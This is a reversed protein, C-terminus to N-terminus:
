ILGLERAKLIAQARRKVGLKGYINSAHRKVTDLAIVLEEAIEANSQGDCILCLVDLERDTLPEILSQPVITSLQIGLDRALAALQENLAPNDITTALQKAQQWAALAAATDGQAHHLQAAVVHGHALYLVHGSRRGLETGQQLHEAAEDFRNLARLVDALAIDVLCFAPWDSYEPQEALSLAERCISEAELLRGQQQRIRALELISAGMALLNSSARSHQSSRGFCAAAQELDGGALYNYGMQFYGLGYGLDTFVTKLEGRIEPITALMREVHEIATAIDGQHRAVASRLLSMQRTVIAYEPNASPLSGDAVLQDFAEAAQELYPAIHGYDGRVFLTWCYAISLPPLRRMLDPPLSELWRVATNVWGQRFLRRWNNVIVRSALKYDQAALAHRVAPDAHGNEEYWYAARRHLTPLADPQSQRLYGQLLDAFLCHYRFWYHADDLPVIFLNRRNLDALVEASDARETVEDCLPGCLRNLISTELMFRQVPESQRQLVEDTLYELVYHHSGTFAEIFARTDSRGQMSLAALQLGVIWGETRVKLAQVDKPTLSLGMAENMFAVAEDPTFRLDDARLETLQGRGRLRAIPLPPDSRTAVVLHMQPPLHDLLFTLASHVPQAEIVHYDDLVLAFPNPLAAIENLLATLIAEIPPPQPIQLADLANAGISTEITQLAAVFYGWFCSPANDGKDLSLWAVQPSQPISMPSHGTAANDLGWDEVDLGQGVWESLLTTKGFGAPASVLTLKCGPRLGENLRQILRPRPVVSRPPRVPPIYLKTTLFPAVM